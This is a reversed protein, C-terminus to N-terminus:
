PPHDQNFKKILEYLEAASAARLENEGRVGVFTGDSEVTIRFGGTYDTSDCSAKRSM